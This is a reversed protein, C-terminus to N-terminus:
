CVIGVKRLLQYSMKKIYTTMNQSYALIKRSILYTLILGMIGFAGYIASVGFQTFGLSLSAFFLPFSGFMGVIFCIVGSIGVAITMIPLCWLLIYASLLLLFAAALLSGWLPFGLVLLLSIFAMSKKSQKKIVVTEEDQMQHFIDDIDGLSEIAQEETKGDEILDSIMEDYYEMVQCVYEYSENKLKKTLNEMFQQKNM